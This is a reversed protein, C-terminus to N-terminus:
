IKRVFKFSKQEYINISQIENFIKELVNDQNNPNEAEFSIFDNNYLFENHNEIHSQASFNATEEVPMPIIKTQELRTLQSQFYLNSNLQPNNIYFTPKQECDYNNVYTIIPKNIEIIPKAVENITEQFIKPKAEIDQNKLDIMNSLKNILIRIKEDNFNKRNKDMLNNCKMLKYFRNKIINDNRGKLKANIKSWKKHYKLYNKLLIIDDETTWDGKKLSPNLHNYFRERCHKALRFNKELNFNQNLEQAIKTWKFKGNHGFKKSKIMEVLLQDEEPNWDSKQINSKKMSLFGYKCQSPSLIGIIESVEEWQKLDKLFILYFYIIKFIVIKFSIPETGM